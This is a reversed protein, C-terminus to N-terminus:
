LHHMRSFIVSFKRPHVMLDCECPYSIPGNLRLTYVCSFSGTKLPLIRPFYGAARSGITECCKLAM